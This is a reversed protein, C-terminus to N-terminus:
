TQVFQQPPPIAHIEYGQKASINVRTKGKSFCINAEMDWKDPSNRYTLLTRMPQRLYIEHHSQRTHKGGPRSWLRLEFLRGFIVCVLCTWSFSEIRVSSYKLSNQLSMSFVKLDDINCSSYINLCIYKCLLINVLVMRVLKNVLVAELDTNDTVTVLFKDLPFLALVRIMPAGPDPFPVMLLQITLSKPRWCTLLPSMSLACILSPVSSPRAALDKMPLNYANDVLCLSM